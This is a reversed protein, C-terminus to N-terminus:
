LAMDETGVVDDKAAGPVVDFFVKTEAFRQQSLHLRIDLVAVRPKIVLPTEIAEETLM